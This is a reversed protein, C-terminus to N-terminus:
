PARLALRERHILYLGALTITVIGAWALPGPLDAFVLYGLVAVVPIELYGLPALTASPAFRLALTMSLHSVSAAVGVGLLLLWAVGPAEATLLAPAWGLGNGLGLLLPLAMAVAIWATHFQMAVPHMGRLRRTVLVYLGFSVATVLPLVAVWGFAAFNPQIVLLAGAFAVAAAAIRRPGVSEGMWLWGLLMVVFPEVYVIAVADALPMVAVAAVFAFTALVSMAARLAVLGWLRRPLRADLGMPALLGGMLAGQVVFRALTVMGVSVYAAALKAAVDILPAILCFGLMLVIGLLVRDGPLPMPPASM